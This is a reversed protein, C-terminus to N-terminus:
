ARRLWCPRDRRRRAPPSSGDTTVCVAKPSKGGTVHESAARRLPAARRISDKRCDDRWERSCLEGEARGARVAGRREDDNGRGRTTRVLRGRSSRKRRGGRRGVSLWSIAGFRRRRFNAMEGRREKRQGGCAGRRARTDTRQVLDEREVSLVDAALGDELGSLEQLAGGPPAHAAHPRSPVTGPSM